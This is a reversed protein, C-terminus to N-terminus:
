KYFTHGGDDDSPYYHYDKVSYANEGHKAITIEMSGYGFRYKLALGNNITCSYSDRGSPRSLERNIDFLSLSVGFDKYYKEIHDSAVSLAFQINHASKSQPVGSQVEVIPLDRLTKKLCRTVKVYKLINDAWKM